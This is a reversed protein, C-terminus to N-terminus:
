CRLAELQICHYVHAGSGLDLFWKPVFLQGCAQKLSRLSDHILLTRPSCSAETFCFDRSWSAHQRCASHLVLERTEPSKGQLAFFNGIENLEKHFEPINQIQGKMMIRLARTCVDNFAVIFDPDEEESVGEDPQALKIWDEPSSKLAQFRRNRRSMHRCVAKQPTPLCLLSSPRAARQCAGKVLIHSGSSSINMKPFSKPSVVGHSELESM